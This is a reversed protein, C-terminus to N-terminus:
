AAPAKAEGAEGQQPADKKAPEGVGLRAKLGEVGRATATKRGIGGDRELIADEINALTTEGDKVATYLTRLFHLEAPSITDLSHALVQELKAADVGLNFFSDTV